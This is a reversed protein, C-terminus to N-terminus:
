GQKIGLFFAILDLVAEVALSIGAFKWLTEVTEFPNLLIVVGLAIAALASIISLISPRFGIKKLRVYVRAKHIGVIILFVGYIVAIVPFIGYVLKNGITLVAGIILEAIAAAMLYSDPAGDVRTRLAQILNGIGMILMIVGFIVIISRTFREPNVFLLVGVIAEFLIVLIISFNNSLRKKM